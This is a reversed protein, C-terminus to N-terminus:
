AAAIVPPMDETEGHGAGPNAASLDDAGAVLVAGVRSRVGHCRLIHRGGDIMAQADVGGYANQVKGDTLLIPYSVGIKHAVKTITDKGADADDTLGLIEFGQAAYQKHFEEFWKQYIPAPFTAGAANITEAASMAMSAAIALLTTWLIQRNM